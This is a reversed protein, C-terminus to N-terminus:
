PINNIGGNVATDAAYAIALPSDPLFISSFFLFAQERDEGGSVSNLLQGCYVAIDELVREYRYYAIAIPDIRTPGYGQYFLAEEERPTRGNGELGDGIFMLDREKPAFILTDWDVMYFAEEDALLLNWGHIDAHCLIYAPPNKQLMGALRETREVLAITEGGKNKLVAAMKAAVPEPFTETRVRQLSLRVIDRWRPSFTERPIGATIAPPIVATHFKKLAAGFEVWQRDSLKKEFGDKGSVYRSLTTRFPPFEVSLLGSKAAIPPIIQPIGIDYLYKPVEVAAPNFEGRRLKLFYKAGEISQVCYVATNLDAGLPLFAITKGRVGYEALLMGILEEEHVDPKELM